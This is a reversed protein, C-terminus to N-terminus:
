DEDPHLLTPQPAKVPPTFVGTSNPDPAKETPNVTAETTTTTTPTTTSEEPADSESSCAATLGIMVIIAGGGVAASFRHGLRTSPRDLDTNPM